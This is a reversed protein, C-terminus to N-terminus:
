ISNALSSSSRSIYCSLLFMLLTFIISCLINQRYFINCLSYMYLTFSIRISFVYIIYLTHSELGISIHKHTHLCVTWSGQGISCQWSYATIPLQGPLILFSDAVWLHFDAAHSDRCHPWFVSNYKKLSFWIFIFVSFHIATSLKCVKKKATTFKISLSM